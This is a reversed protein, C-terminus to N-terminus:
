PKKVASTLLILSNDRLFRAISGTLSTLNQM